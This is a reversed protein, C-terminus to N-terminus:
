YGLFVGSSGGRVGSAGNMVTWNTQNGEEPLSALTSTSTSTSTSRQASSLQPPPLPLSITRPSPTATSYAKPLHFSDLSPQPHLSPVPWLALALPILNFM